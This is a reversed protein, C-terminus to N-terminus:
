LPGGRAIERCRDFHPRRNGICAAMTSRQLPRQTRVSRAPGPSDARSARRAWRELADRKQASAAEMGGRVAPAFGSVRAHQSQQTSPARGCLLCRFPVNRAVRKDAQHNTNEGACPIAKYWWPWCTCGLPSVGISADVQLSSHIKSDLAGRWASCITKVATTRQNCHMPAWSGARDSGGAASM